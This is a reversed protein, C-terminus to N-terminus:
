AGNYDGNITFKRGARDLTHISDGNCHECGTKNKQCNSMTEIDGWIYGIAWFNVSGCQICSISSTRKDLEKIKELAELLAQALEPVLTRSAAIFKANCIKSTGCITTSDNGNDDYHEDGHVEYTYFVDYPQAGTTDVFNWGSSAKEALELARNALEKPTM